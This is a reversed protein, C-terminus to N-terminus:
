CVQVRYFVVTITKLLLFFSKSPERAPTIETKMMMWWLNNSFLFLSLSVTIHGVPVCSTKLTCLLTLVDQDM